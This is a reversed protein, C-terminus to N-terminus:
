KFGSGAHVLEPLNVGEGLGALDDMTPLRKRDRLVAKFLEKRDPYYYEIGRYKVVIDRKRTAIANKTPGGAIVENESGFTTIFGGDDVWKDFYTLEFPVDAKWLVGERESMFKRASGENPSWSALEHSLVRMYDTTEDQWAVLAWNLMHHGENEFSKTGRYLTFSDPVAPLNAEKALNDWRLRRSADADRLTKGFATKPNHMAKIFAQDKSKHEYGQIWKLVLTKVRTLTDAAGNYVKDVWFADRGAHATVYADLKVLDNWGFLKRAGPKYPEPPLPPVYAAVDKRKPMLLSTRRELAKVLLDRDAQDMQPVTNDVFRRWGGVRKVFKEIDDLQNILGRGLAEPKPIGAKDFVEHYSPNKSSSFVDWESIKELADMPKRGAKARYLLSGGNDIRAVEGGPLKVINDSSMGIVDWNGLLVDAAFGKLISEANAKSYSSGLTGENEIIKSVYVTRGQADKFVTTDAANIGLDRYITNALHENYAQAADKYFKVYYKGGDTGTYYGGPNSGGQGATMKGGLVVAEPDLKWGEIKLPNAPPPTNPVVTPAKPTAKGTLPAEPMTIGLKKAYSLIGKANYGTKDTKWEAKAKAIIQAPTWDEGVTKILYKVYVEVDKFNSGDHLTEEKPYGLDKTIAEPPPPAHATWHAQMEAATVDAHPYADKVTKFYGKVDFSPNGGHSQAIAELSDLLKITHDDQIGKAAKAEDAVKQAKKVARAEKDIIVQAEAAAKEAEHKKKAEIKALKDAVAQAHAVLKADAKAKAEEKLKAGLIVHTTGADVMQLLSKLSRERKGKGWRNDYTNEVLDDLDIKGAKYLDFKAPGLARRQLDESQTGFWNSGTERSPINLEGDEAAEQGEGESVIGALSKVLPVMTCRCAPHSDMIENVPHESGDMALCVPCTHDTHSAYWVWGDVVDQNALMQRQSAIRYARISETRAILVARNKSMGLSDELAAGTKRPNWGEVMAQGLVGRASAVANPAIQKFLDYLASGNSLTGAMEEFAASHLSHFSGSIGATQMQSKASATVDAAGQKLSTKQGELTIEQAAAAFKELEADIQSILAHYREQSVLWSAAIAGPEGGSAYYAAIKAEVDALSKKLGKEAEEYSTRIRAVAKAEGDLFRARHSEAIEYIDMQSLPKGGKFLWHFLRM